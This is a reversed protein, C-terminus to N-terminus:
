HGLRLQLAGRAIYHRASPGVICRVAAALNDAGVGQENQKSISSFTDRHSNVSSGVLVAVRVVIDVVIIIIINALAALVVRRQRVGRAANRM